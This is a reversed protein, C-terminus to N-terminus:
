FIPGKEYDVLLYSFVAYAWTFHDAHPVSNEKRNSVCSNCRCIDRRHKLSCIGVHERVNHTNCRNGINATHSRELQQARKAGHM